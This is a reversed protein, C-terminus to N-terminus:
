NKLVAITRPVGSQTIVVLYIGDPLDSLDLSASDQEHPYSVSHSRLLSGNLTRVEISTPVARTLELAVTTRGTTPNPFVRMASRTDFDNISTLCPATSDVIFSPSNRRAPGGSISISTDTSTRSMAIFTGDWLRLTDSGCGYFRLQLSSDAHAFDRVGPVNKVLTEIHPQDYLPLIAGERVYIPLHDLPASVTLRTPGVAALRGTSFDYWRGAPFVITRSIAGSDLVPAVLVRDGLLFQDKINVTRSDEPYHVFLPRAVPLGRDIAEQTLTLFYPVFAVHLRAYRKLMSRTAESQDFVLHTGFFLENGEHTWLVPFMSCVQLWRIWLEESNAPLTNYEYGAVHASVLPHGSLGASLISPIITKIGDVASWDFQPDGTWILPSYKQIGTWGGRMWFTYDGDPRRSEWFEQNTRAWWLPYENHVAYPNGNASDVMEIRHHEGFDSMWGSSGLDFANQLMNDQLWRRSSQRTLDPEAVQAFFALWQNLFTKGGADRMFVGAANAGDFEVDANFIYPWFYHLVKFGDAHHKLVVNEYDPYRVRDIDWSMEAALINNMKESWYSHWIASCPISDRRLLEAVDLSRDSESKLWNRNKAMVWVGFVWPEPMRHLRGADATYREIIQAPSAGMYVTFSLTEDWVSIENIDIDTRGVDFSSCSNNHLLMGYGRTSLYFPVRYNGQDQPRPGPVTDAQGESIWNLLREGRFAVGDLREGFGMLYEDPFLRLRLKTRFTWPSQLGTACKFDVKVRDNDLVVVRLDFGQGTAGRRFRVDMSHASDSATWSAITDCFWLDAQLNDRVVLHAYNVYDVSSLPHWALGIPIQDGVAVTELLVEGTANNVIRFGATDLLFSVSGRRLEHVPVQAIAGIACHLITLATVIRCIFM